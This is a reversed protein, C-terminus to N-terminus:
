PRVAKTRGKLTAITYERHLYMPWDCAIQEVEGPTLDPRHHAIFEQLTDFVNPDSDAFLKLLPGPMLESRGINARFIAAGACQPAGSELTTNNGKYGKASHCPLFFPGVAQGVYTGVESGGLEGPECQRSFPCSKCAKTHQNSMPQM